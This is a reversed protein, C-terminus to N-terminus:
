LMVAGQKPAKGPNVGVALVLKDALRVAHRVVDLHGNTVPDFSGAYLATRPRLRGLGGQLSARLAGPRIEIADARGEAVRADPQDGGVADILVRDNRSVRWLAHGFAPGIVPEARPGPIWRCSM